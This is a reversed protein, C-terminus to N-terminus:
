QSRAAPLITIQIRLRKAGTAPESPEAPTIKSEQVRGLTALETKFRQYETAPLTIWLTEPQVPSDKKMKSITDAPQIIRGHFKKVLEDIRQRLDKGGEPFTQPALALEYQGAQVASKQAMDARRMSSGRIEELLRDRSSLADVAGVEDALEAKEQLRATPAAARPAIQADGEKLDQRFAMESKAPVSKSLERQPMESKQYLYVALVGVLVVATAHIPIKISFPQFIREWLSPGAAEERVQAMVEQTFGPPPDVSPLSAVSKISEALDDAVAQCNPCLYLHDEVARHRGSELTGELYDSLWAQMEECETVAM